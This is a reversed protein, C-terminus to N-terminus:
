SVARTPCGEAYGTHQSDRLMHAPLLNSSIQCRPAEETCCPFSLLLFPLFPFALSLCTEGGPTPNLSLFALFCEKSDDTLMLRKGWQPQPDAAMWCGVANMRCGLGGQRCCLLAQVHQTFVDLTGKHMRKNVAQLSFYSFQGWTHKM